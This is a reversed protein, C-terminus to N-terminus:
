VDDLALTMYVDATVYRVDPPLPGHQFGLSEYLSIAPGLATNSTLVVQTAGAERAFQLVRDCLLRGIGRGRAEPSVALKALEVTTPPFCIAACTGVVNGHDIAFFIQGGTALVHGEPDQLCERDAQEFLSHTELWQRNLREFAEQLYPRYSIIEIM